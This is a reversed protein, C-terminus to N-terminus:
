INIYQNEQRIKVTKTIKLIRSIKHPRGDAGMHILRRDTRVITSCLACYAEYEVFVKIDRIKVTLGGIRIHEPDVIEFLLKGTKRDVFRAGDRYPDAGQKRYYNSVANIRWYLYVPM